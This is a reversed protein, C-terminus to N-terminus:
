LHGYTRLVTSDMEIARMRLPELMNRLALEDANPQTPESCLHRGVFAFASALRPVLTSGVHDADRLLHYEHLIDLQWLIRHMFETGDHAHCADRSGADLWIAQNNERIAAANQIARWGPHDRRFLGSDRESGLLATPVGSPYHFRNRLPVADADLSPEVMPAIAAVAHFAKPRAFAMKLAGYGGMSIGVLGADDTTRYDNKLRELLSDAVLSEWKMGRDSDDLYFCFPDVGACAVVMPRIQNTRFNELLLPAIATLTEATGGGGFLFLCVPLRETTTPRIATCAVSGHVSSQVVFRSICDEHSM